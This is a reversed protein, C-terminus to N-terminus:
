VGMLPSTGKGLVHSSKDCILCFLKSAGHWTPQAGGKGTPGSEGEKLTVAALM